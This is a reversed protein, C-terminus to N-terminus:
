QGAQQKAKAHQLDALVKRVSVPLGKLEEPVEIGAPAQQPPDLKVAAISASVREGIVPHRRLVPIVLRRLRENATLRNVVRRALKPQRLSYVLLGLARVPKTLKWSTSSLTARLREDLSHAWQSMQRNADHAEVLKDQLLAKAEEAQEVQLRTVRLQEELELAQAMSAHLQENRAKLEAARDNLQTELERQWASLKKADEQTARLQKDLAKGNKWAKDLHHSIFEDFVNPQIGFHQLLEPHEDAVYYRNLGDFWVFRYGQSTVLADWAAHNTERSNPLTAEIVLVWPRWRAFDMGKIVEGEFGEVDIKLFHIDGRVYEECVSALTRVPVTMEVVEHGESRHLEAVSAEPSAWGRVQPTDYLTLEGNAAGAAIALNVDRPRQELFAQHFSPLPEISIGRWGADYFAKTVSHEEPDNAGVDIYFGNQVHGLARWLLVDESNQSYSILTM